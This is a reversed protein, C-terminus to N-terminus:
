GRPSRRRGGAPRQARAPTRHGQARALWGKLDTLSGNFRDRDVQGAIGHVEGRDSYQWFTWSSWASPISPQPADSYHAIWLPYVRLPAASPFKAAIFQERTYVVPRRGLKGEVGQLWELVLRVREGAEILDWQDQSAGGRVEELDLAPPLDDPQLTSVVKMFHDVQLSVPQAPSCVHYAGRLVGVTRTERWNRVFQVDVGDIGETAKLYAFGIGDNAVAQWDIPGQFHAVDIGLAPARTTAMMGCDRAEVGGM